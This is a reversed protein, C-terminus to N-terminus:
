MNLYKESNQKNREYGEGQGKLFKIQVSKIMRVINDDMDSARM